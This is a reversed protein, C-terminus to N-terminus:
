FKLKTAFATYIPWWSCRMTILTINTYLSKIMMTWPNTGTHTFIVIFKKIREKGAHEDEYEEDEHLRDDTDACRYLFAGGDVDGEIYDQTGM